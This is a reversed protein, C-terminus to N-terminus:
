QILLELPQQLLLNLLHVGVRNNLRLFLLRLPTTQAIVALVVAVAMKVGWWWWRHRPVRRNDYDFALQQRFPSLVTREPEM